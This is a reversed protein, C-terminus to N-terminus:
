HVGPLFLTATAAPSSAMWAHFYSAQISGQRYLAEGKGVASGRASETHMAALLPTECLSYHFTHGRLEGTALALKQPGLAALRAQMKVRGPLLGWMAHAQGQGDVLEDFLAMM